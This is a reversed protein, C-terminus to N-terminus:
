LQSDELCQRIAAAARATKTHETGDSVVGVSLGKDLCVAPFFFTCESTCDAVSVPIGLNAAERSIQHNIERCNTAAVALFAGSLDGPQYERLQQRVGAPLSLPVPDIVLIEAGFQVLTQIRRMGIRGGGVVVCRRRTLDIFLPFRPTMSKAPIM